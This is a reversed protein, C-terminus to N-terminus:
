VRKISGHNKYLQVPNELQAAKLFNVQAAQRKEHALEYASKKRKSFDLEEDFDDSKFQPKKKNM